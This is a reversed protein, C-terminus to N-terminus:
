YKPDHYIQNIISDKTEWGKRMVENDYHVPGPGPM